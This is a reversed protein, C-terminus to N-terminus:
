SVIVVELWILDDLSVVKRNKVSICHLCIKICTVGYARILQFWCSCSYNAYAFVIKDILNVNFMLHTWSKM